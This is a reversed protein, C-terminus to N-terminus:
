EPEAVTEVVVAADPQEDTTDRAQSRSAIKAAILNRASVDDYDRVEGKVRQGHDKTFRVRIM